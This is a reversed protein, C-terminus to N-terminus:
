FMQPDILTGSMSRCVSAVFGVVLFCWEQCVVAIDDAFSTHLLWVHYAANAIENADVSVRVGQIQEMVHASWVACRVSTDLLSTKDVM